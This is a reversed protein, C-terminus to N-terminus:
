FQDGEKKNEKIKQQLNSMQSELESLKEDLSKEEGEKAAAFGFGRNPQYAMAWIWLFPWLAHLTFLSVWGAAHIADAHPHHRKEAIKAPIDHIFVIGYVFVFFVFFVIGLALWSLADYM